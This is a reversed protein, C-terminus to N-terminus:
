LAARVAAVVAEVMGAELHPGIPLNLLRDGAHESVPLSGPGMGYGRYVPQLHM